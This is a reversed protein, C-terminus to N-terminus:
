PEANDPRSAAKTIYKIERLKHGCLRRREFIFWRPCMLHAPHRHAYVNTKEGEETRKKNRKRERAVERGWGKMGGKKGSERKGGGM